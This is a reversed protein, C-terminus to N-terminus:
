YYLSYLQWKKFDSKPNLITTYRTDGRNGDHFLHFLDFFPNKNLFSIKNSSVMYPEGKPGRDCGSDSSIPHISVSKQLYPIRKLLNVMEKKESRRSTVFSLDQEKKLFRQDRTSRQTPNSSLHLELESWRNSFFFESGKTIPLVLTSEKPYLFCSKKGKRNRLSLFSVILRNMHSSWFSEELTDNRGGISISNMSIPLLGILYSNKREVMDRNNLRYLLVSVVFFLLVGKITFKFYPNKKSGPPSLVLSWIKPDFLKLFREQHFFIQIFFFTLQLRSYFSYALPVPNHSNKIDRLVERLEWLWLKFEKKIKM